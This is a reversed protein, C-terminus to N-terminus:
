GIVGGVPRGTGKALRETLRSLSVHFGSHAKWLGAGKETTIKGVLVRIISGEDRQSFNTLAHVTTWIRVDRLATVLFLTASVNEERKTSIKLFPSPPSTFPEFM